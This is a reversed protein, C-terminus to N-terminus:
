KNREADTCVPAPPAVRVQGVADPRVEVPARHKWYGFTAHGLSRALRRSAQHLLAMLQTVSRIHRHPLGLSRAVREPVGHSLRWQLAALLSTSAVLATSATSGADRVYSGQASVLPDAELACLRREATHRPEVEAGPNARGATIPADEPFQLNKVSQCRVAAHYLSPVKSGQRGSVLYRMRDSPMSEAGVARRM